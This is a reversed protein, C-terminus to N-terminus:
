KIANYTFVDGKNEACLVKSKCGKEQAQTKYTLYTYESDAGHMPFITNPNLKDVLYFFGKSVAAANWSGCGTVPIFAIDINKIKGAVYDIEKQYDVELDSNRCVHDGPHLISLGDVEVLFGEGTDNSNFTTIKVDDVMQQNQPPIYTYAPGNYTKRRYIGSVLPNFGDIYKIKEVNGNWKYISTTDFHDNHDHSSFVYVNQGKLDESRINGNMVGANEPLTGRLWYDFILVHNKTKVTWGSHGNYIIVAQGKGVKKTFPSTGMDSLAEKPLAGKSIFLSALDKYGYKIAYEAATKNSADRITLDAGAQILAEAIGKNGKIAAWHLATRRNNKDQLNLNKVKPLICQVFGQNYSVTAQILANSNEETSVLNVDIGKEILFRVIDLKDFYSLYNIANQNQTTKSNINAGGEYLIEFMSLPVNNWCATLLPTQGYDNVANANADQELLYRVIETRNSNVAIHLPTNGADCYANVVAGKEVLYRVFAIRGRSCAIYLPTNSYANRANVNAGSDVLCKLIDINGRNAALTLATEQQINRSFVLNKNAGILEKVKALDSRNVADHIPDAWTFQLGTTVFLIFAFFGKKM